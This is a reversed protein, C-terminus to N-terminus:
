NIQKRYEDKKNGKLVGNAILLKKLGKVILSYWYFNLALMLWFFVVTITATVKEVSDLRDWTTYATITLMASLIPFILVRIVTFSIFFLIQNVLPVPLNLEDKSYMTRYNLFITSIECLLAVNAISPIGYGTYLGCFLGSVGIIHHWMTQQNLPDKQNMFFRYLIYDYSLYGSTICLAKVCVTDVTYFCVPDYMFIFNYAGECESHCMAYFAAM